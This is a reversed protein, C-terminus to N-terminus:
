RLLSAAEYPNYENKRKGGRRVRKAIAAAVGEGRKQYGGFISAM